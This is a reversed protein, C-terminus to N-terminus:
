GGLNRTLRSQPVHLHGDLEWFLLADFETGYDRALAPQGDFANGIWYEERRPVTERKRM